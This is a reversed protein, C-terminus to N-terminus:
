KCNSCFGGKKSKSKGSGPFGEQNHRVGSNQGGFQNGLAIPKRQRSDKGKKPGKQRSEESSANSSYVSDISGESKEFKELIERVVMDFARDINKATLASTELFLMDHAKAVKRGEETHVSIQEDLDIKNGVLM